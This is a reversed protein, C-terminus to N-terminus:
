PDAEIKALLQRFKRRERGSLISNTEDWIRQIAYKHDSDLEIHKLAQVLREKNYGSRFHRKKVALYGLAPLIQSRDGIKLRSVVPDFRADVIRYSSWFKSLHGEYAATQQFPKGTANFYKGWAANMDREAERVHDFLPELNDAIRQVKLWFTQEGTVSM